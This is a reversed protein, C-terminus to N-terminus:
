YFYTKMYDRNKINIMSKMESKINSDINNWFDTYFIQMNINEILNMTLINIIKIFQYKFDMNYEDEIISIISLDDKNMVKFLEDFDSIIKHHNLGVIFFSTKFKNHIPKIILIKEFSLFLLYIMDIIIKHNIPIDLNLIFNGNDKLNFLIFLMNSYILKINDSVNDCIIWDMDNYKTEKIKKLKKINCKICNKATNFINFNLKNTMHKKTYFLLSNISDNNNCLHLLNIDIQNGLNKFNIINILEYMQVWENTIKEKKHNINLKDIISTQYFIIQDTINQLITAPRLKLDKIAKIYKEYIIKIEILVKNQNNINIIIKSKQSHNVLSLNFPQDMLFLNQLNNSLEINVNDQFLYTEFGIFKAVENSLFFNKNELQKLEDCYPKTELLNDIYKNIEIFEYLLLFSKDYIKKIFNYFHQSLKTQYTQKNKFKKCHIYPFYFMNYSTKYLKIYDFCNFINELLLLTEETFYLGILIIIEADLELNDLYKYLNELMILNIKEIQNIKIESINTFDEKYVNKLILDFIMFKYKKELKKGYKFNNFKYTNKITETLKNIFNFNIEIYFHDFNTFNNFIMLEVLGYNKSVILINDNKSIDPSIYNLIIFFGLSYSISILKTKLISKSHIFFTQNNIPDFKLKDIKDNLLFPYLFYLPQNYKSYSILYFKNMIDFLLNSDIFKKFKIFTNTINNKYKNKHRFIYKNISNM